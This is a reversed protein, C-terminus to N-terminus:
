GDNFTRLIYIINFLMLKEIKQIKIACIIFVSISFITIKKPSFGQIKIKIM